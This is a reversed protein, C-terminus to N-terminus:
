VKIVNPKIQAPKAHKLASKILFRLYILCKFFAFDNKHIVGKKNGSDNGLILLGQYFVLMIGSEIKGVSMVECREALFFVLDLFVMTTLIPEDSSVLLPRPSSRVAM